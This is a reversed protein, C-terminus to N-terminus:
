ELTQVCLTPLLEIGDTCIEPYRDLAVVNELGPNSLDGGLQVRSGGFQRRAIRKNVVQLMLNQLCRLCISNLLPHQSSQRM